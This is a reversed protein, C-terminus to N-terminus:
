RHWQASGAVFNFLGDHETEQSAVDARSKAHPVHFRAGDLQVNFSQRKM